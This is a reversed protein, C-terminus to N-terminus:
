VIVPSPQRASAACAAFASSGAAEFRLQAVTPLGALSSELVRLNACQRSSIRRLASPAFASPPRIGGEGGVKALRESRERSRNALRTERADRSPQGGYSRLLSPPGFHLTSRGVKALRESRERSRNTFWSRQEYREGSSAQAVQGGYRRLRSPPLHVFGVRRERSARSSMNRGDSVLRLSPVDLGM